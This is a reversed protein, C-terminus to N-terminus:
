APMKTQADVWSLFEPIGGTIPLTVICPTDYSHLERLRQILEPAREDSSKLVLVAEASKQVADNWWYISQVTGLVNACAALREAVVIEALRAAEEVNSATVYLFVAM